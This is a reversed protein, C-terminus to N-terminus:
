WIRWDIEMNERRSTPKQQGNTLIEVEKLVYDKLENVSTKGDKLGNLVCHTFAGNSWKEGELAAGQGRAASIVVAGNGKSLNTFLEQMLEFSNQLGISSSDPIITIGKANKAITDKTSFKEEKDVEGSHCADMLVLKKRAPISDLLWEIDDYSLGKIEPYKYDIDYTGYYFDLSDSLFGHGSIALIVEDDIKTNYLKTKIQLVNERTVRSNLLTDAILDPNNEKFISALDRIDKVSYTLNLGPNKYDSVGIGIFYVNSKEPKLPEYTIELSEKLSEVGKKNLCSVQVKNEGQSLNVPIDMLVSDKNQGRLSIGNMGYVPVDNVWLNIRDLNYETDIAKIKLQLIRSVASLQFSDKNIIEIEPTHFEPSFMSEDFKMKKLRKYYAKRYSDILVKPAYGIRELIIDPRNYKLDFQSFSYAHNKYRFSIYKLGQKSSKYFYDPTVVVYEGEKIKDEKSISEDINIPLRIFKAIESCNLYDWIEITNALSKFFVRKSKENLIITWLTIANHNCFSGTISDTRFSKIFITDGSKHKSMEEPKTDGYNDTNGDVYYNLSEELLYKNDYRNDINIIERYFRTNIIDQCGVWDANNLVMEGHYNFYVNGDLIYLLNKKNYNLLYDNLKKNFYMSDIKSGNYLTDGVKKMFEYEYDLDIPNDVISEENDAYIERKLDIITCSGAAESGYFAFKSNDNKFFMQAWKYYWGPIQYFKATVLDFLGIREEDYIGFYMGNSSIIMNYIDRSFAVLDLISSKFIKENHGIKYFCLSNSSGGSGSSYAYNAIIGNKYDLAYRHYADYAFFSSSGDENSTKLTMLNIIFTMENSKMYGNDFTPLNSVEIMGLEGEKSFALPACLFFLSDPINNLLPVKDCQIAKRLDSKKLESINIKINLFSPDPDEISDNYILGNYFGYIYPKGQRGIYPIGFCKTISKIKQDKLNWIFIKNEVTFKNNLYFVLFNDTVRCNLEEYGQNQLLSDNLFCDSFSKRDNGSIFATNFVQNGNTFDIISCDHSNTIALLYKNDITKIRNIKELKYFGLVKNTKINVLQVSSSDILSIKISDYDILNEGLMLGSAMDWYQTYNSKRIQFIKGDNIFELEEDSTDDAVMNNQIVLEPNQSFSLFNNLLIILIRIFSRINM